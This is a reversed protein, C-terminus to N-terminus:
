VDPLEESVAARHAGSGIDVEHVLREADVLISALLRGTTALSGGQATATEVATLTALASVAQDARRQAAQRGAELLERDSASSPKEQLRGFAAVARGAESLMSGISALVTNVAADAIPQPLDLLSRVIGRTQTISHDLARRAETLRELQALEGRARPNFQLSEQGQKVTSIAARSDSALDRARVLWRRLTETNPGKALGAGLDTLLAGLDEGIGRLTRSAESVHSPPVVLANVVVAIVAGVFTDITREVGYGSGLSIALMASIPVQGSLPGLRLLEGAILGALVVLAISWWHLGLLKGLSLAAGLGLTVAVTLQISRTLSARVTVQLVIIAALSALAPRPSGILEAAEWALTAALTSKLIRRFPEREIVLTEKLGLAHIRAWIQDIRGRVQAWQTM